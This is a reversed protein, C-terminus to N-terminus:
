FAIPRGCGTPPVQTLHIGLVEPYRDNV